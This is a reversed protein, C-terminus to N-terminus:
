ASQNLLDTAAAEDGSDIKERAKRYLDLAQQRKKLADSNSSNIVQMAGSSQNLLRGINPLRDVAAAQLEVSGALLTLLFIACTKYLQMTM